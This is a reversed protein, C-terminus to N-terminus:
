ESAEEAAAILEAIEDGTEVTPFEGAGDSAVFWGGDLQMRSPDERNSYADGFRNITDVRLWRAPPGSYRYQYVDRDGALKRHVKIFTTM